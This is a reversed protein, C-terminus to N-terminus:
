VSIARNELWNRVFEVVAAPDGLDLVPLRSALPRDSAIAILRCDGDPPPTAGRCLAIRPIPADRFGEVLVLDLEDENLLALLEDLEPERPERPEIILASQREAAILLREIGARRLRDSDKGPQDLDFDIRAQKIVGVRLGAATLRRIVASLLTTKGTGSPAVFGLVPLAPLPIPNTEPSHMSQLSQKLAAPNQTAGPLRTFVDAFM